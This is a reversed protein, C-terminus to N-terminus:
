QVGEEDGGANARRFPTILVAACVAKAAWQAGEIKKPEARKGWERWADDEESDQVSDLDGGVRTRPKAAAGPACLLLLLAAGVWLHRAPAARATCARTVM